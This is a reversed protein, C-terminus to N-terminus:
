SPLSKVHFAYTNKQLYILESALNRLQVFCFLHIEAVHTVSFTKSFFRVYSCLQKKANPFRVNNSTLLKQFHTPIIKQFFVYPSRSFTCHIFLNPSLSPILQQKQLFIFGSKGKFIAICAFWLNVFSIFDM